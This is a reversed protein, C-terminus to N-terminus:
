ALLKLLTYLMSRHCQLCCSRDFIILGTSQMQHQYATYHASDPAAGTVHLNCTVPVSMNQDTHDFSELKQVSMRMLAHTYTSTTHQLTTQESPCLCPLVASPVLPAVLCHALPPLGPAVRVCTACMCVYSCAVCRMYGIWVCTGLAHRAIACMCATRVTERKENCASIYLPTQTCACTCTAGPLTVGSTTALESAASTTSSSSLLMCTASCTHSCGRTLVAVSAM